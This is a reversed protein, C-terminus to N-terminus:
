STIIDAEIPLSWASLPPLSPDKAILLEYARDLTEVDQYRMRVMSGVMNGIFRLLPNQLAGMTIYYGLRPHRLYQMKRISGIPPVGHVSRLDNIFHVLSAESANLVTMCEQDFVATEKIADETVGEGVGVILYVQGPVLVSWKRRPTSEIM